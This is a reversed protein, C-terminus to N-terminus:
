SGGFYYLHFSVATTKGYTESKDLSLRFEADFRDLVPTLFGFSYSDVRRDDVATQWQGVSVDVSKLGFRYELGTSIRHDILSGIATLRSRSVYALLNIDPQIRLDKSYDYVMGGLYFNIRESFALRSSIGFGDVSFEVTQGRSLGTQLDFEFKRKQYDISMSGANGVVYLSMSVDRSDLIDSDGWYSGGIRLGVPDFFYDVNLEAFVIENSRTIADTESKIGAFSLWAKDGYEIDAFASIARGDASDGEVGLGLLFDTADASACFLCLSPLLKYFSM